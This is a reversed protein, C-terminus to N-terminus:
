GLRMHRVMQSMDSAASQPERRPICARELSAARRASSAASWRLMSVALRAVVLEVAGQRYGISSSQLPVATSTMTMRVENTSTFNRDVVSMPPQVFYRIRAQNV